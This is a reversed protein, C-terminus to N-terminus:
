VNFQSFGGMVHRGADDNEMACKEIKRMSLVQVSNNGM